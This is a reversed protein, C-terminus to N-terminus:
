VCCAGWLVAGFLAEGVMWGNVGVKQAYYGIQYCIGFLVGAILPYMSWYALAVLGGWYMGRQIALMHAKMHGGLIGDDGVIEGLSLAQGAWMALAALPVQWWHAVIFGSFVAFAAINLAKGYKFRPIAGGRIVNFVAGMAAPLIM